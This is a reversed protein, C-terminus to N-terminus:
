VKVTCPFFQLSVAAPESIGTRPVERNFRGAKSSCAERVIHVGLRAVLGQFDALFWQFLDSNM